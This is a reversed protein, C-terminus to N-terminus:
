HSHTQLIVMAILGTFLIFLNIAIPFFFMIYLVIIIHYILYFAFITIFVIYPLCCSCLSNLYEVVLATCLSRQRFVNFNVVM